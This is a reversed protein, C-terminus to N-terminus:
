KQKAKKVAKVAPRYALRGMGRNSLGAITAIGIGFSGALIGVIEGAVVAGNDKSRDIIQAPHQKAFDADIEQKAKNTLAYGGFFGGVAMSGSAFVTVVGRRIRSLEIQTKKIEVAQQLVPQPDKTVHKFSEPATQRLYSLGEDGLQVDRLLPTLEKPPVSAIVYTPFDVGEPPTGVQALRDIFSDKSQSLSSQAEAM